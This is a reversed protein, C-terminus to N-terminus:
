NLKRIQVLSAATSFYLTTIGVPIKIVITKGPPCVREINAATTTVGTISFLASAGVCTVIYTAGPVVTLTPNEGVATSTFKVADAMTNDVASSLIKVTATDTFNYYGLVNWQVGDLQQNVTVTDLLTSGDYIEVDVASARNVHDVWWMSVERNGLVSAEFSYSSGAESFIFRADGGYSGEKTSLGWTGISSTGPDGNDVIVQIAIGSVAVPDVVDSSFAVRNGSNDSVFKHQSM